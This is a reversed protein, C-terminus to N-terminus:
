LRSLGELAEFVESATMQRRKALTSALDRAMRDVASHTFVRDLLRYTKNYMIDIEDDDLQCVERGEDRIIAKLATTMSSPVPRSQGIYSRCIANGMVMATSLEYQKIMERWALSATMRPNGMFGFAPSFRMTTGDPNDIDVSALMPEGDWLVLAIAMGAVGFTRDTEDTYRLPSRKTM